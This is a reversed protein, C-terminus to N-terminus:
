KWAVFDLFADMAVRNFAAKTAEVLMSRGPIRYSINVRQVHSFGAKLLVHRLTTATFFTRHYRPHNGGVWRGGSAIFKVSRLNPVEVVCFGSEALIRNVIRLAHLPENLHELVHWLTVIDFQEDSTGVDEITARRVNLSYERQAYSVARDSIDIGTADFNRERATKLFYGRGCGVDFIRGALRYNGILSVRQQNIAYLEALRDEPSGYRYDEGPPERDSYYEEYIREEVPPNAVFVLSCQLCKVIIHPPENRRIRFRAAGCSPCPRLPQENLTRVTRHPTVPVM